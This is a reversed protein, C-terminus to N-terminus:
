NQSELERRGAEPDGYSRRPESEQPTPAAFPVSPAESVRAVLGYLKQYYSRSTDTKALRLSELAMNMADERRGSASLSKISGIRAQESNPDTKLADKYSGLAEDFSSMAFYADGMICQDFATLSSAVPLLCTLAQQPSGAKVLSYALYRRIMLNDPALKLAQSFGKVAPGFQNKSMQVYAETYLKRLAPNSDIKQLYATDSGSTQTQKSKGHDYTKVATDKAKVPQQETEEDDANAVAQNAALVSIGSQTILTSLAFLFLTRPLKVSSM